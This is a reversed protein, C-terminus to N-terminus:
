RVTGGKAAVHRVKPCGADIWEQIQARNWRVLSGLRLPLPMRGSDSLRYIHRTSCGGLLVAVAKVDLLAPPEAPVQVPLSNVSM